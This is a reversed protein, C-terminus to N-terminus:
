EKEEEGETVVEETSAMSLGSVSPTEGGKKKSLKLVSSWSRGSGRNDKGGDAKGAGDKSLSGMSTSLPEHEEEGEAYAAPIQPSNSIASSSSAPAELNRSSRDRRNFTPLSFMGSSSKRTIKQMFSEKGSSGVLPSPGTADSHNSYSPTRALDNSARGSEGAISSETTTLSRADRSKRSAPPSDDFGELLGTIASSSGAAPGSGSGGVGTNATKEKSSKIGFFSKFDKAAPNLKPTASNDAAEDDPEIRKGPKTGIPGLNASVRADDIDDRDSDEDELIDEPPGSAGYQVSPRRSPHRSGFMRPNPAQGPGSAVWGSGGFSLPSSRAGATADGSPWTDVGWRSSDFSPRPLENSHTSGPRPSGPRRGFTSTFSAPWGGEGKEANTRGFLTGMGGFARRARSPVASAQGDGSADAAGDFGAMDSGFAAPTTTASISSNRKRTASDLGPISQDQKPMSNAKSLALTSEDASGVATKARPKIGFMSSFRSGAQQPVGGSTARGSRNSRVSRRDTDFLPRTDPSSMVHSPLHHQSAHPSALVSPSRSGPQSGPSQAGQALPDVQQHLPSPGASTGLGALGALGPLSGLGPLPQVTAGEAERGNQNQNGESENAFLDAPLLEAGAGPSMPAGGTLKEREEDSMSMGSTQPQAITMGNHINLFPASQFPSNMAAMGSGFPSTASSSAPGFAGLRPSEATMNEGRSGALRGTSRQSDGRQIIGKAASGEIDTKSRMPPPPSSYQQALEEDRRRQERIHDLYRAQEAHFRKAAELKQTSMVYQQQLQARHIQWQREDEADQQFQQVLSQEEGGDHNDHNNASPSSNKMARELTKIKFNRDRISDDLSKMAAMEETHKSRLSEKEKELEQLASVKQNKIRELDAKMNVAEQEWRAVDEKLKQREMHKSQLVREQKTRENQATTNQRELTNVERKLNRSNREKETVEAKLADRESILEDKMKLEEDEDERAQKEAEDTERRIADLRETLQQITEGGEQGEDDEASNQNERRDLGLVTPSPRRGTISRKPGLHAGSSSHDRSMPAAEVAAPTIDKLGRYLRVTPLTESSGDHGDTEEDREASAASPVFFDASSAPKTRFRIPTSRSGFEAENVLGVRVVYFCGPSLGTITVATEGIGVTDIVVGNLWVEYKMKSGGRGVHGSRSKGGPLSWHVIAGDAKIAALDTIPTAPIDFGLLQALAPLPKNLVLTTRYLLWILALSITLPKFWLALPLAFTQLVSLVRFAYAPDFPLHQLLEHAAAAPPHQQPHQRSNGMSASDRHVGEVDVPLFHSRIIDIPSSSTTPSCTPANQQQGTM